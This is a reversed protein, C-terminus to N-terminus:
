YLCLKLLRNMRERLREVIRTAERLLAAKVKYVSPTSVEDDPQNAVAKVKESAGDRLCQLYLTGNNALQFIANGDM